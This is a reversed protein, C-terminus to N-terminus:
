PSVETTANNKVRSWMVALQNQTLTGDASRITYTRKIAGNRILVRYDLQDFEDGIEVKEVLALHLEYQLFPAGNDGTCSTCVYHIDIQDYHDATAIKMLLDTQITNYPMTLTHVNFTTKGATINGINVNNEIGSSYSDLLFWGDSGLHGPVTSDGQFGSGFRVVAQITQAELTISLGSSLILITYIIKQMIIKKSM